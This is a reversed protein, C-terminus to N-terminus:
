NNPLPGVGRPKGPQNPSVNITRELGRIRRSGWTTVVPYFSTARFQGPLPSSDVM